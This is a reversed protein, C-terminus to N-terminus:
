RQDERTPGVASGYHKVARRKSEPLKSWATLAARLIDSKSVRLREAETEVWAIAEPSTRVVLYPRGKKPVM